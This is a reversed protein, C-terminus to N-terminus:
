RHGIAYYAGEGDTPHGGVIIAKDPDPSRRLPVSRRTGLRIPRFGTVEDDHLPNSRQAWVSSRGGRGSRWRMMFILERTRPHRFQDIQELKSFNDALPDFECLNVHGKPWVFPPAQRFM